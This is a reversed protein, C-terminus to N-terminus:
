LPFAEDVLEKSHLVLVLFGAKRLREIERVQGPRPRKGPAKTEVLTPDGLFLVLCDPAHARGIWKVFRVEGGLKAVRERLYQKVEGEPTM